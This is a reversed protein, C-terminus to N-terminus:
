KAVGLKQAFYIISHGKPIEKFKVLFLSKLAKEVSQQFYFVAGDYNKNRSLVQAKDMDSEAQRLWNLIEQRM